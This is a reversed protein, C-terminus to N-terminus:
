GSRHWACCWPEGPGGQLPKAYYPRGLRAARFWRTGSLARTVPVPIRGGPEGTRLTLTWRGPRLKGVPLPATFTPSGERAYLVPVERVSGSDEEARLATVPGGAAGDTLRGSVVLTAPVSTDWAIGTM